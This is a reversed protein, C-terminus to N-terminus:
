RQVVNVLMGEVVRFGREEKTLFGLEALKDLEKYVNPKATSVGRRELEKFAAHGTAAEKFFGDVILRALRGRLTAHSLEIVQREVEVRIEPKTALLRLVQPEKLLRTRLAHYLADDLAPAGAPAALERVVEAQRASVKNHASPRLRAVLQEELEAIRSKLDQNEKKLARAETETVNGEQIVNDVGPAGGFMRSYEEETMRKTALDIGFITEVKKEDLRRSM